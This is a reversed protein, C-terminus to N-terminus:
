LHKDVADFSTIVETLAKDEDSLAANGPRDLLLSKMGAQQAAKTETLSWRETTGMCLLSSSQGKANDTLFLVSEM